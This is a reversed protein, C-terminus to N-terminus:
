GTADGHFGGFMSLCYSRMRQNYDSFRAQHLPDLLLSRTDFFRGQEDFVAENLDFSM